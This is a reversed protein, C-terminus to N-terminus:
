LGSEVLGLEARMSAAEEDDLESLEAELRACVAVAQAGMAAAHEAIEPPVEDEGEEVNAVFLVPKATLPQVTRAPDVEEPIPVMRAPKGEHYAAILAELYQQEAIATKDGG